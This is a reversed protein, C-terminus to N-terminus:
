KTEAAVQQVPGGAASALVVQAREGHKRQGNRDSAVTELRKRDSASVIVCVTQAM